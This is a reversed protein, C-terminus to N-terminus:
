HPSTPIWICKRNKGFDDVKSSSSQRFSAVKSACLLFKFLYLGVSDAAFIYAVIVGVVVVAVFVFFITLQQM